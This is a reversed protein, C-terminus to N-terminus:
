QCLTGESAQGSSFVCLYLGQLDETLIYWSLSHKQSIHVETNHIGYMPEEWYYHSHM